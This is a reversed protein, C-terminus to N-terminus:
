SRSIFWEVLEFDFHADISVMPEDILVASTRAGMITNQGLLCERTFVYAAGNRYYLTDLQQRAIIQGGAPDYLGLQEEKFTLQKLPHAKSDSQSITWVADWGGDVLKRIAQEVHEARRLPSTPPLMVIVDFPAGDHAEMAPVAHHLVQLDSIRDGSLDEPRTFPAELGAQRGVEVIEPHDSSLYNRDILEVQAILQGVLAVLPVGNVPQINKLPVGKSGGRAPVVALIRKGKYM